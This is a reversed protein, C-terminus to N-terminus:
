AIYKMKAINEVSSTYIIYLSKSFELESYADKAFKVEQFHRIVIKVKHTLLSHAHLFILVGEVFSSSDKQVHANTFSLIDGSRLVKPLQM